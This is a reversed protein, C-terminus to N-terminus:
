AGRGGGVDSGGGRTLKEFLQRVHFRKPNGILRGPASSVPESDLASAGAGGAAAGSVGAGAATTTVVDSPAVEVIGVAKEAKTKLRLLHDKVEGDYRSAVIEEFGIERTSEVGFFSRSTVQRKQNLIALFKAPDYCPNRKNLYVDQFAAVAELKGDVLARVFPTLGEHDKVDLNVDETMLLTATTQYHDCIVSRQLPTFGEHDLSNVDIGGVEILRGAVSPADNQVAVHLMNDGRCNLVDFDFAIEPQTAADEMTADFDSVNDAFIISLLRMKKNADEVALLEKTVKELASEFDEDSPHSTEKKADDMVVRKVLDQTAEEVIESLERQIELQLKESDVEPEATEANYSNFYEPKGTGPNSGVVYRATTGVVRGTETAFYPKNLAYRHILTYFSDHISKYEDETFNGQKISAILDELNVDPDRVERREDDIIRVKQQNSNEFLEPSIIKNLMIVLELTRERSTALSSLAGYDGEFFAGNVATRLRSKRSVANRALIKKREEILASPTSATVVTDVPRSM